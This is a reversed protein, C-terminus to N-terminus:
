NTPQGLSQNIPRDTSHNTSQYILRSASHHISRDFPQNISLKTSQNTRQNISQHNILFATTHGTISTIESSLKSYIVALSIVQPPNLQFSLKLYIEHSLPVIFMIEVSVGHLSPLTPNLWFRLLTLESLKEMKRVYSKLWGSVEYTLSPCTIKESFGRM